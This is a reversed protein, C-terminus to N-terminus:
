AVEGVNALVSILSYERLRGSMPWLLTIVCGGRCQDSLICAVEGVSTLSYERLRGSVPWLIYDRLRGLMQILQSSHSHAPSLLNKDHDSPIIM